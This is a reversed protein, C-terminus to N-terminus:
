PSLSPSPSPSPSAQPQALIRTLAGNSPQGLGQTLECGAFCIPEGLADATRQVLPAWGPAYDFVHLRPPPLTASCGVDDSTAAATAADVAADAAADATANATANAAAASAASSASASAAAGGSLVLREFVAWGLLCSAPGGGVSAVRLQVPPTPKPNPNLNPRVTARM